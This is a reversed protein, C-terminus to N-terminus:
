HRQKQKAAHLSSTTNSFCNEAASHLLSAHSIFHPKAWIHPEEQLSDEQQLQIEEHEQSYGILFIDLFKRNVGDRERERKFHYNGQEM